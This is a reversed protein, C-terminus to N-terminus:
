VLHRAGSCRRAPTTGARPLTETQFRAALRMHDTGIVAPAQFVSKAATQPRDSPLPGVLSGHHEASRPETPGHLFPTPNSRGQHGSAGAARARGGGHELPVSFSVTFNLSTGTPTRGM